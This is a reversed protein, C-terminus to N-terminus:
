LKGLAHEVLALLTAAEHGVAHAIAWAAVGGAIAQCFYGMVLRIRYLGARVQV